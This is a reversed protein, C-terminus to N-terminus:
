PKIVQLLTEECNTAACSRLISPKLDPGYGITPIGTAQETRQLQSAMGKGGGSKVQIVANKLLIDADTIMQGTSSRVPVNVDIVHGPYVSEIKTALNGVLPDTSKFTRSTCAAGTGAAAPAKALASLYRGAGGIMSGGVPWSELTRM